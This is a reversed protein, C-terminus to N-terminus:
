SNLIKQVIGDNNANNKLADDMLNIDLQNYLDNIKTHLPIINSQLSKWYIWLWMALRDYKLWKEKALNSEKKM